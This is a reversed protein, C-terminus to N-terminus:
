RGERKERLAEQITPFLECKGQIGVMTAGGIDVKTTLPPAKKTDNTPRGQRAELSKVEIPCCKECLCKGNFYSLWTFKATDATEKKM